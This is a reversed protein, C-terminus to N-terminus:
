AWKPPRTVVLRFVGLLKRQDSVIEFGAQEITDITERVLSCGLSREQFPTLLREVAAAARWPSLVHEMFVVRGDPRCVRAIEGLAREPHPVTCLALSIAVTDFSHDPFALHEADMQALDVTRGLARAREAARELMGQSLDVGFARTVANSYYPLNLGTGIAIELTEGRLAQGFRSRFDGLAIREGLGVTADYGAAREDYIERIRETEM